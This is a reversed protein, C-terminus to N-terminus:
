VLHEGRRETEFSCFRQTSPVNCLSTFFTRFALFRRCSHFMIARSLSSLGSWRCVMCRSRPAEESPEIDGSFLYTVETEQNNLSANYIQMMEDLFGCTSSDDRTIEVNKNNNKEDEEEERGDEDPTETRVLVVVVHHVLGAVGVGVRARRGARQSGLHGCRAVGGASSTFMVHSAPGHHGILAPCQPARVVVLDLQRRRGRLSHVAAGHGKWWHVGPPGIDRPCIAPAPPKASGGGGIHPARAAGGGGPGGGGGRGAPANWEEFRLIDEEAGASVESPLSARLSRSAAIRIPLLQEKARIM